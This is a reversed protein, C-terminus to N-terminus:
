DKQYELNMKSKQFITKNKISDYQSGLINISFLSDPLREKKFYYSENIVSDSKMLNNNKSLYDIKILSKCKPPNSIVLLLDYSRENEKDLSDNYPRLSDIFITQRIDKTIKGVSDYKILNINHDHWDYFNYSVINNSKDFFFEDGISLDNLYLLKKKLKGDEYFVYYFGDALGNKYNIIEHINGNEYYSIIKVYDGLSDFIHISLKNGSEYLTFLTDVPISDSIYWGYTKVKGSSYYEKKFLKEKKTKCGNINVITFAMIFILYKNFM